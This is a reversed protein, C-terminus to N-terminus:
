RGLYIGSDAPFFQSETGSFRRDDAFINYIDTGEKYNKVHEDALPILPARCRIPLPIQYLDRGKIYLCLNVVQYNANDCL